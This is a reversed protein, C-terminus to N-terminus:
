CAWESSSFESVGCFRSYIIAHGHVILEANLSLGGCFVEAITRGYSLGQGDDVDYYAITGVPCFDSTFETAEFYGIDGMEPTDVLALRIRKNGIDLTDGDVIHTVVGSSCNQCEEIVKTLETEPIIELIVKPIKSNISETEKFDTEPIQFYVLILFLPILLFLVTSKKKM